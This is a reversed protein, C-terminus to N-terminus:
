LLAEAVALVVRQFMADKRRQPEPLEAYPVLCPSTKAEFSKVPGHDPPAGIFAPSGIRELTAQLLSPPASEREPRVAKHWVFM